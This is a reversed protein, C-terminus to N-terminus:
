LSDKSGKEASGGFIREQMGVAKRSVERDADRRELRLSCDDDWGGGERKM